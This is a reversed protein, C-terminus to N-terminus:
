KMKAKCCEKKAAQEKCDGQKACDKKATSDACKMGHGCESACKKCAETAKADKKDCAKGDKSCCSKGDKKDCSKAGMDCAKGDKSCCSKGDKKDCSKADMSACTKAADKSCAVQKGKCKKAGEPTSCLSGEKCDCEKTKGSCCTAKKTTDTKEQAEKKVVDQKEPTQASASVGLAFLCAVAFIFRKMITKTLNNINNDQPHFVPSGLLLALSLAM